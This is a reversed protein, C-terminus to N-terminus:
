LLLGFLGLGMEYTLGSVFVKDSISYTFLRPSLILSSMPDRSATIIKAVTKEYAFDDPRNLVGTLLYSCVMATELYDKNNTQQYVSRYNTFIKYTTFWFEKM